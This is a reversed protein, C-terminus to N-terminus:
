PPAPHAPETVNSPATLPYKQPAGRKKNSKLLRYQSLIEAEAYAHIHAFKERYREIFVSSRGHKEEFSDLLLLGEAPDHHFQAIVDAAIMAGMPRGSAAAMLAFKLSEEQSAENLRVAMLEQAIADGQGALVRLEADSRQNQWSRGAEMIETKARERASVEAPDDWARQPKSTAHPVPDPELHREVDQLPRVDHDQQCTVSSERPERGVSFWVGLASVMTLAAILVWRKRM